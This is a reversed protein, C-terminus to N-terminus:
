EKEKASLVDASHDSYLNNDSGASHGSAGGYSHQCDSSDTRICSCCGHYQKSRYTNSIFSMPLLVILFVYCQCLM